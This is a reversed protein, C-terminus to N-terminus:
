SSKPRPIWGLPKSAGWENILNENLWAWADAPLQGDPPGKAPLILLRDSPHVLQRLKQGLLVEPEFRVVIWLYRMYRWWNYSKELEQAFPMYNWEPANPDIAVLYAQPFQLMTPMEPFFSNSM